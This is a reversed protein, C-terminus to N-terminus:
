PWMREGDPGITDIIQELHDAWCSLSVSPRAPSGDDYEVMDGTLRVHKDVLAYYIETWDEKTLM